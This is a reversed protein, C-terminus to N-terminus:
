KGSPAPANGPAGYLAHCRIYSAVEDPILPGTSAGAAIMARIETSSVPFLPADLPTFGRKAATAPLPYGERPYVIPAYDRLLEEWARWRDFCALNDAGIILRLRAAPYILRLRHMTDVTYSPRPMSLEVDCAELEPYPACARRLMALRDADAVLQEPHEKLPNLPSLVMLVKGVLGSSVAARAVAIHGNHVPNFSGGFVGITEQPPAVAPFTSVDAIGTDHSLVPPTM